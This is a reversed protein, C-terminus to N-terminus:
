SAKTFSFTAGVGLGLALSSRQVYPDVDGRWHIRSSLTMVVSSLATM